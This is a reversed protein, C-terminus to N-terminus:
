NRVELGGPNTGSFNLKDLSDWLRLAKFIFSTIIVGVRQIKSSLNFVLKIAQNSNETSPSWGGCINVM